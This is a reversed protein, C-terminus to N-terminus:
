DQAVPLPEGTELLTKLSSLIAPWGQGVARYTKTEGDFDDHTVTLKCVEGTQEIEWTVRSPKEQSLEPDYKFLWTMSLRRPRDAELIKGESAVQDGAMMYRLQSGVKWDTDITTGHFYRQTFEPKVIAEWLREPTTRIYSVFVHKPRHNSRADDDKM